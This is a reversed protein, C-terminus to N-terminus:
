RPRGLSPRVAPSLSKLVEALNEIETVETFEGGTLRSLERLFEPDYEGFSPYTLNGGVRYGTGPVGVCDIPVGHGPAERLVEEPTGGENPLGDTILIIRGMEAHGKLWAWGEKLTPLMPTGGRVVPCSYQELQPSAQPRFCWQFDRLDEESPFLLVGLHTAGLNPALHNKFAEWAVAIKSTMSGSCDLMVVLAKDAKPEPAKNGFPNERINMGPAPEIM